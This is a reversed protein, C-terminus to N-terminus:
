SKENGDEAQKCSRESYQRKARQITLTPCTTCITEKIPVDEPSIMFVMAHSAPQRQKRVVGRIVTEVRMRFDKLKLQLTQCSTGTGVLHLTDLEKIAALAWQCETLLYKYEEVDWEAEGIVKTSSSEKRRLKDLESTKSDLAAFFMCTLPFVTCFVMGKDGNQVFQLDETIESTFVPLLSSTDARTGVGFSAIRQLRNRYKSYSQGLTGDNLDVDGSWELQM